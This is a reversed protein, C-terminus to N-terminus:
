FVAIGIAVMVTVDDIWRAEWNLATAKTRGLGALHVATTPHRM